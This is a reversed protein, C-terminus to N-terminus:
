NRARCNARESRHADGQGQGQNHESENRCSKDTSITATYLPGTQTATLYSNLGGDNGNGFVLRSNLYGDPGPVSSLRVAALQSYPTLDVIKSSSSSAGLVVKYIGTPTSTVATAGTANGVLSVAGFSNTVNPVTKVQFGALTGTAVILNGGQYASSVIMIGRGSNAIATRTSNDVSSILKETGVVGNALSTYAIRSTAAFASWAIVLSGDPMYAASVYAPNAGSSDLRLPTSWSGNGLHTAYVHAPTEFNQSSYIFDLGASNSLLVADWLFGGSLTIPLTDAAGVSSGSIAAHRVHTGSGDATTFVAHVTGGPASTTFSDWLANASDLAGALTVGTSTRNFAAWTAPANDRSRQSFVTTGNGAHDVESSVYGGAWQQNLRLFPVAQLTTKFLSVGEILVQVTYLGPATGMRVQTQALGYQDVVQSPNVIQADGSVTFTLPTGAATGSASFVQVVLPRSLLQGVPANQMDAYVNMVQYSGAASRSSMFPSVLLALALMGTIVGSKPRLAYM